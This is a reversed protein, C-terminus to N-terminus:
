QNTKEHNITNRTLLSLKFDEDLIKNFCCSGNFMFHINLFLIEERQLYGKKGPKFTIAIIADLLFLFNEITIPEGRAIQCSILARNRSHRIIPIKFHLNRM